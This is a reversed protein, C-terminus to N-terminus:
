AGLSLRSILRQPLGVEEMRSQVEEIPYEIRRFEWTLEDLDLLGYAARPDYDRPQGVSGPNIMFRSTNLDLEAGYIPGFWEVEGDTAQEYMLPVHSHGVLCYRTDLIRFNEAATLPDIVYEWVPKRPSGHALTFPMEVFFSPLSDLYDLNSESIAEQTWRIAAQADSNFSRIDLRDLVAWDHNGAVTVANLLKVRKICEAPDAGYGVIDGVCIYRDPNEKELVKLVSDLAELNGHIDSIIGYRM